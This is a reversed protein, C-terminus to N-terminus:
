LPEAEVVGRPTPSGMSVDGDADEAGEADGANDEDDSAFRGLEVAFKIGEDVEPVDVNLVEDDAWHYSAAGASWFPKQARVFALPVPQQRPHEALLDSGRLIRHYIPKDSESVVAYVSPSCGYAYISYRPHVIKPNKASARTGHDTPPTPIVLKSPSAAGPAQAFSADGKQAMQKRIRERNAKASKSFYDTPTQSLLSPPSVVGLEMILTIYPRLQLPNVTIDVPPFFNIDTQDIAYAAPPGATKKAKFQLIFGTMNDPTLPGNRDILIPIFADAFPANDRCIVAMGRVFCLCANRESIAVNDAWKAFHTFNIVANKFADRFKVPGDFDRDRPLRINDPVSELVEEARDKSFLASVFDNVGVLGCFPTYRGDAQDTTTGKARDRATTLILRAVTEGVEGVDLLNHELNDRLIMVSPNPGSEERAAWGDMIRAAAAALIPESSYGSRICERDRPISYVTRMHSAVLDMEHRHAASRGAEFSLKIRVDLVASRAAASYETYRKSLDQKCLLKTCAIDLLRKCQQDLWAHDQVSM